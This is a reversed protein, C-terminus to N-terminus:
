SGVFPQVDFFDYNIGVNGPDLIINSIPGGGIQTTGDAVGNVSGATASQETFNFPLATQTITYDGPLLGTFSYYGNAGTFATMDVAQGLDNTGTLTLQMGGLPADGSSANFVFGSISVPPSDPPKISVTPSLSGTFNSGGGGTAGGIVFSTYAEPTGAHDSNQYLSVHNDDVPKVSLANYETSFNTYVAAAWQWNVGVGATDSSFQGQWTVNKIGGPLGNPLSLEVGGLYGNGSFQFPLTTIWNNTAQDFKTTATAGPSFSLVSNPADLTFPTGNVSYSITQNSFRLTVPQSGLGNVKLVSSFWVKSGAPIATGNFNTQVASWGNASALEGFNYGTGDTAAALTIGSVIGVGATGGQTGAAAKGAIFGSAPQTQQLTYTGAALSTFDYFGTADTKQQVNVSHGSNDVGTLTVTVGAVGAQGSVMVGSNTADNYAFGALSSLLCRDELVDLAPQWHHLLRKMSNGELLSTLSSSVVM